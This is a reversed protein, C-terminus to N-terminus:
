NTGRKVRTIEEPVLALGRWQDLAVSSGGKLTLQSAADLKPGSREPEAMLESAKM